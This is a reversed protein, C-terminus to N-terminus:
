AHERNGNNLLDQYVRLLQSANRDADFAEVVYKRLHEAQRRAMDPNTLIELIATRLSETSDPLVLTGRDETLLEPIGGVETAIVPTACAGAEVLVTPLGEAYSPLILVDAAALYDPILANPVSERWLCNEQNRISPGLPGAGVFVGLTRALSPHAIAELALLVGKSPHLYGVFLVLPRDLPLDLVRRAESRNLRSPFRQLNIGIPLYSASLGTLQQTRNCLAHSVCLVRDAGSVAQQFRRTNLKSSPAIKNVDSGHLTIVSPIGLRHAIKVVALGIPYAFHGHILDPKFSINKMVQRAISLHPWGFVYEFRHGFYPIRRISVAEDIQHCPASRQLAHRPSAWAVMSPIRPVAVHVEIKVGLRSLAQAQTQFFIGGYPAASWPYASTLWLVKM